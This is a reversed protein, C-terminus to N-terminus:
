CLILRSERPCLGAEAAWALQRAVADMAAGGFHYHLPTQAAADAEDAARSAWALHRRLAPLPAGIRAVWLGYVWPAAFAEAPGPLLHALSLLPVVGALGLGPIIRGRPVAVCLHPPLLACVCTGDNLSALSVPAVARLVNLGPIAELASVLPDLAEDGPMSLTLTDRTEYM